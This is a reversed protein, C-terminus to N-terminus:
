PIRCFSVYKSLWKAVYAHLFDFNVVYAIFLEIFLDNRNGSIRIFKIYILQIHWNPYIKHLLHTHRQPRIRSFARFSLWFSVNEYRFCYIGPLNSDFLLMDEISDHKLDFNILLLILYMVNFPM